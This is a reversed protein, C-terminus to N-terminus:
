RGIQGERGRRRRERRSSGTVQGKEYMGERMQKENAKKRGNDSGRNRKTTTQENQQKDALECKGKPGRGSRTLPYIRGRGAQRRKRKTAELIRVPFQPIGCKSSHVRRPDEKEDEM